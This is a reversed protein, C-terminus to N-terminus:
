AKEAREIKAVHLDILKQFNELSMLHAYVRSLFGKDMLQKLQKGPLKNLREEDVRFMHGFRVSGGTRTKAHAEFPAILDMAVLTEMMEKTLRLAGDMENIMGETKKWLDTQEGNADIFPRENAELGAPDVCVLYKDAQDRLPVSFFPWRRVYAPIYNGNLWQGDADIFLNEKEELGTIILPIYAGSAGERGFVIPYQKAAHFFETTMLLISNMHRAFGFPDKHLPGMGQFHDVSFPVLESYGPPAPMALPKPKDTM